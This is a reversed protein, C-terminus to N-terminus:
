RPPPPAATSRSGSRPPLPVAALARAVADSTYAREFLARAKMTLHRALQPDAMLRRCQGAFAAPTDGLLVHEEATAAIGEVGISTSVVPRGYRFAELVKIRTGGGARVPVIVADAGGYWPAVDPVAGVLRVEPLAALQRIAPTVGTGVITVQFARPAALRLLPLVATCFYLIADENPYYGLTGVFLLRFLGDARQQAPLPPLPPLANPLVCLQASSRRSLTQRDQESCVYIRDLDRLAVTELEEAREVALDELRALAQNGNLRYLDAIRRRTSSEIDDLDLHRQPGQRSPGFYQRAFPVMALRFVHVIDLTEAAFPASAARTGTAAANPGRRWLGRLKALPRATTAALPPGYAPARLVATQHCLLVFESPISVDFPPYL